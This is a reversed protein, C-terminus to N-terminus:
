CGAMGRVSPFIAMYQWHPVAEPPRKMRHDAQRWIPSYCQLNNYSYWTDLDVMITILDGENINMLVLGCLQGLDGLGSPGFDLGAPWRM